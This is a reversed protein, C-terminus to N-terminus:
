VGQRPTHANTCSPMRPIKKLYVFLSETNPISPRLHWLRAHLNIIVGDEPLDKVPLDSAHETGQDTSECSTQPSEPPPQYLVSAVLFFITGLLQFRICTNIVAKWCFLIVCMVFFAGAANPLHIQQTSDLLVVKKKEWIMVFQLPGEKDAPTVCWLRRYILM